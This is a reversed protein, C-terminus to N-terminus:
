VAEIDDNEDESLALICDVLLMANEMKMRHYHIREM